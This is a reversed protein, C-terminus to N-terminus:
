LNEGAEDMRSGPALGHRQAFARADTEAQGELQVRSVV